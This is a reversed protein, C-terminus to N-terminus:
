KYRRKTSEVYVEGERIKCNCWRLLRTGYEDLFNERVVFNIIDSYMIRRTGKIVDSLKDVIEKLLKINTLTKIKEIIGINQSM